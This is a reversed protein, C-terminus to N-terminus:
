FKLQLGPVSLGKMGKSPGRHKDGDGRPYKNGHGDPHRPHHRKGKGFGGINIEVGVTPGDDGDSAHRPRRSKKGSKGTPEDEVTKGKGGKGQDKSQDKSEHDREPRHPRRPTPRGYVIIDRTFIPHPDIQPAHEIFPFADDFKVKKTGPLSSWRAPAGIDGDSDLPVLKGPQDHIRCVGRNNCVKVAGEILLLWGSGDSRLFLDFITGRVSISATPTRILYTPKTAVGTIFRFAGKVLDLIISGSTREPDYVYKDLVLRSGPGLAVKTEDKFMLEGLSDDGVEILENQRVDDGKQLQRKDNLLEATVLNRIAIASGIPDLPQAAAPGACSVVFAGLCFALTLFWM